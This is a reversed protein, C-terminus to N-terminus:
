GSLFAGHCRMSGVTNKAFNGGPLNGGALHVFIVVDEGKMVNSRPRRHMKQHDGLAVNGGHRLQACVIGRQHALDHRQRGFQRQFLAALRIRVAAKPHHDIGTRMAPLLHRMQM